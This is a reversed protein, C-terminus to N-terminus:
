DDPNDINWKEYREKLGKALDVLTLQPEAEGKWLKYHEGLKVLAPAKPELEIDVTGDKSTRVRRIVHALGLRCVRKM